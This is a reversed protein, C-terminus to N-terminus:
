PVQLNMIANVLAVWRDRDETLDTWDVGGCGMEPLDMKVNDVWRRKTKGPPRKGDHRRVLVRRGEM